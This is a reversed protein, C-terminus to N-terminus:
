VDVHHLLISIYINLAFTMPSNESEGELRTEAPYNPRMVVPRAAPAAASSSRSFGILRLHLPSAKSM